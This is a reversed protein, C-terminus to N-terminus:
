AKLLYLSYGTSRCRNRVPLLLIFGVGCYRGIEEVPMIVGTENNALMVTILCTTRNIKSVIDQPAVCGRSSVSVISVDQFSFLNSMEKSCTVSNLFSFCRYKLIRVNKLKLMEV